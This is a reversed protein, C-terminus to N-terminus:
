MEAIYMIIQTVHFIKLPLKVNIFVMFDASYYLQFLITILM